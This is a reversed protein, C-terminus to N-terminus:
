HHGPPPGTDFLTLIEQITEVRSPPDGRWGDRWKRQGPRLKGGPAKVEILVNRGRWGLLADPKGEAEGGDKVLNTWSIGLKACQARLEAHNRDKRQFRM